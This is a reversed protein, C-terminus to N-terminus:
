NQYIKGGRSRQVEDTDRDDVPDNHAHEEVVAHLRKDLLFEQEFTKAVHAKNNKGYDDNEELVYAFDLEDDGDGGNDQGPYSGSSKVM